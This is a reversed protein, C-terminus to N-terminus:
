ARMAWTVSGGRRGILSRMIDDIVTVVPQAQSGTGDRYTVSIPGVTESKVGQSPTYDPSLSGPTTLERMAAEYTANLVEVPVEDTDIANGAADTANTRPWERSQDRGDTRIGTFKAGYTGDLWVSARLLAAEKADAPSSAVGTWATNLRAEHYADALAVSGYFEPM